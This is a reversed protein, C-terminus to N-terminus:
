WENTLKTTQDRKPPTPPPGRRLAAYGSLNAHKASHTHSHPHSLTNSHGRVDQQQQQLLEPPPPPLLAMDDMTGVPEMKSSSIFDSSALSGHRSVSKRKLTRNLDELFLPKLALSSPGASKSSTPPDLSSSSYPSLSPPPIQSLLPPSHSNSTTNDYQATHSPRHNLAPPRVAGKKLCGKKWSAPWSTHASQHLQPQPNVVAVKPPHHVESLHPPPPFLESDSPPPPFYDPSSEHHPPQLPLPPPPPSPFEPSQHHLRTQLGQLALPLNALNLKRPKPLPTSFGSSEKSISGSASSASSPTSSPPAQGFKSVLCEVKKPRDDQIDSSSSNQISSVRQPTTQPGPKVSGTSSTSPSKKIPSSINSSPPPPFDGLSSDLPPPPFESSQPAVTGGPQWKPKAKVVPPSQPASFKSGEMSNSAPVFSSASKGPFQNVIQKVLSSTTASICTSSASPSLAVNKSSPSHQKPLTPPPQNPSHETTFSQQKKIPGHSSHSQTPSVPSLAVPLSSPGSPKPATQPPVGGIFTKHSALPLLNPSLSWYAQMSAPPSLEAPPPPLSAVPPSFDYVMNPFKQALFQQLGCNSLQPCSNPIPEPPPPLPLDSAKLDEPPPPPIYYSEQVDEDVLPPLQLASPSPSGFILPAITSGPAPETPLPPPTPSPPIPPSTSYSAPLTKYNPKTFQSPLSSPATYAPSSWSQNRSQLCALTSYKIYSTPTPQHPVSVVPSFPPLPSPLSPSSDESPLGDSYSMWPRTTQHQSLPIPQLSLSPIQVPIPRSIPDMKEMQFFNLFLLPLPLLLLGVCCFSTSPFSPFSVYSSSPAYLFALLSIFLLFDYLSLFFSPPSAPLSFNCTLM